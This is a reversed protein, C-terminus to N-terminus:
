SAVRKRRVILSILFCIFAAVVISPGSPSDLHLSAFLGGVVAIAGILGAFLAMQEPSVAFMRGTAAPIILLSTILLVGVITMWIAGWIAGIFAAAITVSGFKM